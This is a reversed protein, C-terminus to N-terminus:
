GGSVRPLACASKAADAVDKLPVHHNRAAKKCDEYEPSVNIIHQGATAIKCRIIGYPTEVQIVDRQAKLRNELRWRMGITTTERLIMDALRQVNDPRCIVTLLNGPRNKKMQVPKLLVDYAGMRLVKEMVYDYIQPNMDDIGTEMVAVTETEYGANEVSEGIMLRLLNAVPLDAQGAGYGACHTIMPPMGGFEHTVTSLIAAGTPTLLEGAVGTSYIPKGTMLEVTAPAPVPLIGHRCRVTGSGVHIPSCYIRTVGLLSLGAIAGVVDVIADVAGVEHFHIDEADTMHIRAEAQALREFVATSRQKVPMPLDSEALIAAIDHLHRAHQHHFSEDVLVEVQTGAIGNKLVKRAKIQYHSLNLKSLEEELQKLSLGADLLAGLIMDGSAGSFCDFYAIRM